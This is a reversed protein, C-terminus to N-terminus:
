GLTCWTLEAYNEITSSIIAYLSETNTIKNHMVKCPSLKELIFIRNNEYSQFRKLYMLYNGNSKLHKLIRFQM